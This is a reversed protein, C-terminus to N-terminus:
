FCNIQNHCKLLKVKNENDQDNEIENGKDMEKEHQLLGTWANLILAGAGLRPSTNYLVPYTIWWGGGGCM